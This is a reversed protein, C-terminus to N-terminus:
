YLLACTTFTRKVVPSDHQKRHHLGDFENTPNSPKM